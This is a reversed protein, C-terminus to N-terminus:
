KTIRKVNRSIRTLMEERKTAWDAKLLGLRHIDIYDNNVKHHQRLVGEVVFGFKQHLSIVPANFELVECYLKNLGLHGFVYELTLYEMKSGTGKPAEPSAYFAWSSNSNIMDIETLAVIGMPRNESVYMFYLKDVCQCIHSWWARHEEDTIEHHTYM